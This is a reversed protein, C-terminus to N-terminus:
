PGLRKRLGDAETELYQQLLGSYLRAVLPALFGSLELSLTVMSGKGDPAAVHGGKIMVGPSRTIWTFSKGPELETVEWVAPRLKPQRVEAKSGVAFPGTDLRRISVITSNWKRWHEVDSLVAMVRDPSAKIHVATRFEQM